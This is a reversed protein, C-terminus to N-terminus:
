RGEQWCKELQRLLGERKDRPLERMKLVTQREEETLIINNGKSLQPVRREIRARKASMVGLGTQLWEAHCGLAEAIQTFRNAPIGDIKWNTITRDSEGILAALDRVSKAGSVRFMRDVQEKGNQM